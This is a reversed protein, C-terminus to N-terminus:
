PNITSSVIDGERIEKGNVTKGIVRGVSQDPDVEIIKIKGLYEVRPKTRFVQMEHGVVLGEDSGNTFEITQGKPGVRLVEGAVKPPTEIGRIATIDDSLGNQRLKTSFRAVQDRLDDRTRQTTELMRELERIKDNLETQNLKYDNAQKEIAAKQERLKTTEIRRDEAEALATKANTQADAVKSRAATIQDRDSAIEDNLAKLQDNLMKTQTDYATKAAELDKKSADSSAKATNLDTQLKAVNQKQKDAEAKWNKMTTFVVTSIGLFLLSFAMIVIVFIRGVFTM